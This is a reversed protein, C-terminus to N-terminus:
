ELGTLRDKTIKGLNVVGLTKYDKNHIITAKAQNLYNCTIFIIKTDNANSVSSLLSKMIFRYSFVKGKSCSAFSWLM